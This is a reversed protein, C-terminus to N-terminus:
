KKKKGKSPPIKKTPKAKAAPKKTAVKAKKAPAKAKAPKKTEKKEEAVFKEVTWGVDLNMKEAFRNPKAKKYDFHYEFDMEQVKRHKPTPMKLDSKM